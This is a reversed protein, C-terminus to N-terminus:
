VEVAPRQLEDFLSEGAVESRDDTMATVICRITDKRGQLYERTPGSVAELLVGSPDVQRLVKISNVYIDIIDGTKAGACRGLAGPVPSGFDFNLKIEFLEFTKFEFNEVKM